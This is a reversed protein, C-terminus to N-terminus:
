TTSDKKFRFCLSPLTQKAIRARLLARFHQSDTAISGIVRGRLPVQLLLLTLARVEYALALQAKPQGSLMCPFVTVRQQLAAQVAAM